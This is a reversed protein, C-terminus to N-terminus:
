CIVYITVKNLHSKFTRNYVTDKNMFPYLTTLYTITSGISETTLETLTMKNKIICEYQIM